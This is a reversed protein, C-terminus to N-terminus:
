QRRELSDLQRSLQNIRRELQDLERDQRALASHHQDLANGPRTARSLQQSQREISQLQRTLHYLERRQRELDRRQNSMEQQSREWLDLRQPDDLDPGASFIIAGARDRVELRGGADTARVSFVVAGAANVVEFQQAQITDPVSQSPTAALHLGAVLTLGGVLMLRFDRRSWRKRIPVISRRITQRTWSM